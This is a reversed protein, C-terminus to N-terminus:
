NYKKGVFCPTIEGAEDTRSFVIHAAKGRRDVIMCNIPFRLKNAKGNIITSKVKGIILIEFRGTLFTGNIGVMVWSLPFEFGHELIIIEFVKRLNEEPFMKSKERM